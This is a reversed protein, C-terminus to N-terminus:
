LSEIKEKRKLALEEQENLVYVSYYNQTGFIHDCIAYRCSHIKYKESYDYTYNLFFIGNDFINERNINAYLIQKPERYEQVQSGVSGSVHIDSSNYGLEEIAGIPRRTATMDIIEYDDTLRDKKIMAKYTPNCVVTNFKRTEEEDIIGAANGANCMRYFLELEIDNLMDKKDVIVDRESRRERVVIEKSELWLENETYISPVLPVNWDTERGLRERVAYVISVPYDVTLYPFKSLFPTLYIQEIDRDWVKKFDDLSTRHHKPLNDGYIRLFEKYLNM